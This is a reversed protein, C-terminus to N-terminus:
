KLLHEKLSKFIADFVKPDTTAPLNLNITYSIGLKTPHSIQVVTEQQSSTTNVLEEKPEINNKSDFDALKILETFTAAVKPITVDDKSAGLISSLKSKIQERDLKYVYENASFLVGYAKKLEQAIITGRKTDDRFDIYTKTPVNADNLFGIKKLFPIMPRYSSSKLGLVVSLFDTNFKPPVAAEKIKDFLNKLQGYADM